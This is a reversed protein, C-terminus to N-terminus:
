SKQQYNEQARRWLPMGLFNLPVKTIIPRSMTSIHMMAGFETTGNTLLGMDKQAQGNAEYGGALYSSTASYSTEKGGLKFPQGFTVDQGDITLNVGRDGYQTIEFHDVNPMKHKLSYTEKPSTGSGWEANTGHTQREGLDEEKTVSYIRYGQGVSSYYMNIAPNNKVHDSSRAEASVLTGGKNVTTKNFYYNHKHDGKMINYQAKFDDSRRRARWVDFREKLGKLGDHYKVDDGFPDTFVNPNDSFAVYPSEWTKVIPDRNWRRGLRPDYQWFEATYSNGIGSVEDDKEKGNFGFRYPHTVEPERGEM